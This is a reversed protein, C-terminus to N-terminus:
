YYRKPRRRVELVKGNFADIYIIKKQNQCEWTMTSDPYHTLRRQRIGVNHLSAIKDISKKPLFKREDGKNEKFNGKEIIQGLSDFLLHFNYSGIGNLTDSYVYAIEYLSKGSIATWYKCNIIQSHRFNLQEIFRSNYSSELYNEASSKVREPLGDFNTMVSSSDSSCYKVTLYKEYYNSGAFWFYNDQSFAINIVSIILLLSIGFHRMANEPKANPRTESCL